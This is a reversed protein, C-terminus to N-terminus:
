RAPNPIEPQRDRLLDYTARKKQFDAVAQNLQERDLTVSQTSSLNGNGSVFNGSDIRIFIWIAFGVFVVLLFLGTLLLIRWDRSTNCPAGFDGTTVSVNSTDWGFLKM